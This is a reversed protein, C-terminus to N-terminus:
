AAMVAKSRAHRTLGPFVRRGSPRRQRSFAQEVVRMRIGYRKIVLRTFFYSTDIFILMRYLIENSSTVLLM